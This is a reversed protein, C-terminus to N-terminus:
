NALFQGRIIIAFYKSTKKQPLLVLELYALQYIVLGVASMRAFVTTAYKNNGHYSTHLWGKFSTFYTFYYKHWFIKHYAIRKDTKCHDHSPM